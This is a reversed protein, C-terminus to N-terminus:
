AHELEAKDAVMRAQAVEVVVQLSRAVEGLGQVMAPREATVCVM